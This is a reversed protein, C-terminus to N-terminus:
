LTGLPGYTKPTRFLCPSDGHFDVNGHQCYDEGDSGHEAEEYRPWEHRDEEDVDV